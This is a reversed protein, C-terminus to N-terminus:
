RLRRFIFVSITLLLLSAGSLILFLLTYRGYILSLLLAPLFVGFLCGFVGIAVAAHQRNVDDTDEIELFAFIVSASCIATSLIASLFKLIWM